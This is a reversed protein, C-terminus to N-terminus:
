TFSITARTNAMSEECGDQVGGPYHALIRRHSLMGRRRRMGGFISCQRLAGTHNVANTNL